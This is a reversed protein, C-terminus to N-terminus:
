GGQRPSVIEIRDNEKLRAEARLRKPVFVGNLATAVIADAFDLAAIAEALSVAALEQPEGNVVLRLPASVDM